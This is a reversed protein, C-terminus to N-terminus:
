RFRAQNSLLYTKRSGCGHTREATSPEINSIEIRDLQMFTAALASFFVERDYLCPM